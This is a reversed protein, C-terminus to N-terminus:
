TCSAFLPQSHWLETSKHLTTTHDLHGIKAVYVNTHIDRPDPDPEVELLPTHTPKTHTGVDGRYSRPDEIISLQHPHHGDVFLEVVFWLEVM